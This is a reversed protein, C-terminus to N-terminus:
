QGVGIYKAAQSVCLTARGYDGAYELLETWTKSEGNHEKNGTLYWRGGVGVAAYSYRRGYIRRTFTVTVPPCYGRIVPATAQAPDLYTYHPTPEAPWGARKLGERASRLRDLAADRRQVARDQKRDARRLDEEASRVAELAKARDDRYNTVTNEEPQATFGEWPRPPRQQFLGVGHPADVDTHLSMARIDRKLAELDSLTYAPAMRGDRDLTYHYSPETM